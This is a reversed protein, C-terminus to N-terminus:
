KDHRQAMETRGAGARIERGRREDARRRCDDGELLRQAHLENSGSRQHGDANPQVHGLPVRMGMGMGSHHMGMGVSVVLMVPMGMPWLIRRSLRVRVRVLVVCQRV